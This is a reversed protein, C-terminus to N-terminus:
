FRQLSLCIRDRDGHFKIGTFNCNAAGMRSTANKHSLTSDHRLPTVGDLVMSGAFVTLPVIKPLIKTEEATYETTETIGGQM